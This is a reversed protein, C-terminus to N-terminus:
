QIAKSFNSFKITEQVINDESLRKLSAFNDFAKSLFSNKQEKGLESLTFIIDGRKKNGKDLHTSLIQIIELKSNSMLAEYSGIHMILINDPYNLSIEETVNGKKDKKDYTPYKNKLYSNIM